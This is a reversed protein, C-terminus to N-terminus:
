KEQRVKHRETTALASQVAASVIGRSVCFRLDSEAQKWKQLSAAIVGRTARFSVVEPAQRVATEANQWARKLHTTVHDNTEDDRAISVYQLHLTWALNNAIVPHDPAQQQAEELYAIAKDYDHSASASTGLLLPTLWRGEGNLISQHFAVVPPPLSVTQGESTTITTSQQRLAAPPSNCYELALRLDTLQLDISESPISSLWWVYRQILLDGTAQSDDYRCAEAMVLVGDLPQGAAALVRSLRERLVTDQPQSALMQTLQSAAEQLCERAADSDDLASYALAMQQLAEPDYARHPRLVELSEAHFGLDNIKRALLLAARSDKPAARVRHQLSLIETTDGPPSRTAWFDALFEHAPQYGPGKGHRPALGQAISLAHKLAETNSSDLVQAVDAVPSIMLDTRAPGGNADFLNMAFEFSDAARDDSLLLLRGLYAEATQLDSERIATAARARYREELTGSKRASQSAVFVYTAGIVLLVAPIGLACQKWPRSRWYGSVFAPLGAVFAAPSIRYTWLYRIM